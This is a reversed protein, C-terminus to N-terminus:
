QGEEIYLRWGKVSKSKGRILNGVINSMSGIYKAADSYSDFAAIETGNTITICKKFHGSHKGAMSVRPGLKLGDLTKSFFWCKVKRCKGYIVASIRSNCVGIHNGASQYSEFQLIDGSPSMGFVPVINKPKVGLTGEGGLTINCLTGGDDKRKYISIFEKEKELAFDNEVDEFLIDVRFKTKSVINNWHKNRKGTQRARFFKDERLGVGIYFPQNTDLRVHRYVYAM